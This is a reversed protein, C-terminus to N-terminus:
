PMTMFHLCLSDDCSTAIFFNKSVSFSLITFFIASLSTLISLTFLKSHPSKKYQDNYCNLCSFRTFKISTNRLFFRNYKTNSNTSWVAKSSRSLYGLPASSDYTLFIIHCTRLPTSNQWWCLTLIYSVKILVITIWTILKACQTCM